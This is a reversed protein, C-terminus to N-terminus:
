KVPHLLGPRTPGARRFGPVDGRDINPLRDRGLHLRSGDFNTIGGGGIVAGHVASRAARLYIEGDAVLSAHCDLRALAAQRQGPLGLYIMGSGEIPGRFDTAGPSGVLPEGEGWAGDGNRDVFSHAAQSDAVIGAAHRAVLFLRGPGRVVLSRGLYINGDVVLTLSRPLELLLAQDGHDIWLNGPIVQVGSAPIAPRLHNQDSDGLVFDLRDTGASLRLVAISRNRNVLGSRTPLDSGTGTTDQDLLSSPVVSLARAVPRTGSDDDSWDFCSPEPARRLALPMGLVVPAAGTLLECTYYYRRGHGGEVEIRLRDNPQGPYREVRSQLGAVPPLDLEVASDRGVGSQQVALMATGEAVLAAVVSEQRRHVRRSQGLAGTVQWAILTCIGVAALVCTAPLCDDLMRLTRAKM